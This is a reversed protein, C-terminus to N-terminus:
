NSLQVSLDNTNRSVIQTMVSLIKILEVQWSDVLVLSLKVSTTVPKAELNTVNRLFIFCIQGINEQSYSSILLVNLWYARTKKNNMLPYILSLGTAICTPTLPKKHTVPFNLVRCLISHDWNRIGYELSLCQAKKGNLSSPVM